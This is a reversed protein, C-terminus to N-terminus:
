KSNVRSIGGNSEHLALALGAYDSLGQSRYGLERAARDGFLCAIITPYDQASLYPAIVERTYALDDSDLMPQQCGAMSMAYGEQQLMAQLTRAARHRQIYVARYVTTLTAERVQQVSPPESTWLIGTLWGRKLSPELNFRTSFESRQYLSKDM